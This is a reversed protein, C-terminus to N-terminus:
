DIPVFRPVMQGNVEIIQFFVDIPRIWRSGDPASYVIMPTLDSEFTAECILEYIGGKYHRYRM